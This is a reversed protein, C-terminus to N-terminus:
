SDNLHNSLRACAGIKQIYSQKVYNNIQSKVNVIQSLLNFVRLIKILCEFDFTSMLFLRKYRVTISFDEILIINDTQLNTQQNLIENSFRFKFTLKFNTLKNQLQLKNVGICINKLKLSFRLWCSREIMAFEKLTWKKVLFIKM